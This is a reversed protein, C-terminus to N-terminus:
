TNSRLSQAALYIKSWESMIQHNKLKLEVAIAPISQDAKMKEVVQIQTSTLNLLLKEWQQPTLGLNDQISIQLWNATLDPQAKIAFVNIAHYSVKERLRYIQKIPLKMIQGITDQSKGQLYLELWTAADEGVKEKLYDVFEQKVSERLQQQEEWMQEDQYQVIAENNLLNMTQDNDESGIEESVLRVMEKEPVHTMGGKQSRRLYNVFRYVLLPQNRIPRLCYEEITTLLLANSLKKDKTCKSIWAIQQQIYRDSNLLEQIVEQLVDAVARQRDRSLAVHTKIKNRLMVISGLRSILHRYAKEPQVGLYRSKLIRYRYDMAQQAIALQSGTINEFRQLDEGILWGMINEQAKQSLQPCEIELLNQWKEKLEALIKIMKSQVGSSSQSM